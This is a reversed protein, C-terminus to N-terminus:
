WSKSSLSACTVLRPWDQGNRGPERRFSVEISTPAHRCYPPNGGWSGRVPSNRWDDERDLRQSALESRVSALNTVVLYFTVVSLIASIFLCRVSWVLSCSLYIIIKPKRNHWSNNIKEFIFSTHFVRRNNWLWLLILLNLNIHHLKSTAHGFGLYYSM